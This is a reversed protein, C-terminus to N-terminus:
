ILMRRCEHCLVGRPVACKLALISVCAGQICCLSVVGPPCYKAACNECRGRSCAALQRPCGEEGGSAGDCKETMWRSGRAVSGQLAAWAWTRM